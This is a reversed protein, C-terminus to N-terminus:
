REFKQILTNFLLLLIIQTCLMTMLMNNCSLQSLLLQCKCEQEKRKQIKMACIDNGIGSVIIFINHLLSIVFLCICITFYILTIIRTLM